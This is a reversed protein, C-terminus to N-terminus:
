RKLTNLIIIIIHNNFTSKNLKLNYMPLYTNPVLLYYTQTM